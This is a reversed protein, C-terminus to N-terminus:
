GIVRVRVMSVTTNNDPSIWNALKRRGDTIAKGVKEKSRDEAVAKAATTLQKSIFKRVPM